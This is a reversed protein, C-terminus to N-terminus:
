ENDLRLKLNYLWEYDHEDTSETLLKSVLKNLLEKNVSEFSCESILKDCNDLIFQVSENYKNSQALDLKEKRKGKFNRAGRGQNPDNDGTKKPTVRDGINISQPKVNPPRVRRFVREKTSKVTAEILNNFIWPDVSGEDIAAIAGNYAEKIETSQITPHQENATM